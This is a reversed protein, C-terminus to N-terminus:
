YSCCAWLSVAAATMVIYHVTASEYFAATLTFGTDIINTATPYGAQFAPAYTDALNFSTYPVFQSSYVNSSLANPQYVLKQTSGYYPYFSQNQM